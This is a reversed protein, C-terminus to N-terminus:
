HKKIECFPEGACYLPTASLLESEREDHTVVVTLGNKNANKVFAAAERKCADDLASFPEDLLLLDAGVALARILSIRQRMGGSLAEPLTNKHASLGFVEFLEDVFHSGQKDKPLVFKVNEEANLWPLLRPEQFAVSLRQYCVSLDGGTPRELGAILRLLTTKGCGSPGTLTVIGKEPFTFNLDKIVTKQGYKHTLNTLKVM